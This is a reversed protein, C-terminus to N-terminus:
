HCQNEINVAKFMLISFEWFFHFLIQFIFPLTRVKINWCVSSSYCDTWCLHHRRWLSHRIERMLFNSKPYWNTPIESCWLNIKMQVDHSKIRINIIQEDCGTWSWVATYLTAGPSPTLLTVQRPQVPRRVISVLKVVCDLKYISNRNIHISIIGRFRIQFELTALFWWTIDIIQHLNSAFQTQICNELQLKFVFAILMSYVNPSVCLWYVGSIRPEPALDTLLTILCAACEM